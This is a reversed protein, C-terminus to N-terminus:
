TKKVVPPEVAVLFLNDRLLPTIVAAGVEAAVNGALLAVLVVEIHFNAQHM